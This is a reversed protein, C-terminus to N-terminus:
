TFNFDPSGQIQIQNKNRKSTTAYLCASNSNRAPPDDAVNYVGESDDSYSDEAALVNQYGEEEEMSFSDEDESELDEGETQGQQNELMDTNAQQSAAHPNCLASSDPKNIRWLFLGLLGSLVLTIVGCSVILQNFLSGKVELLVTNNGKLTKEHEQICKSPLVVCSYHGSDRMVAGEITFTAELRMVNFAQVQLITENRRLYAQILQCEGLTQLTDTVTCRFKVADGEVVTSPGAVSIVAPLFNAIVLIQIINDGRKNVKSLSHNRVSYVCSYSGSQNLGVRSLIFTTDTQDPKQIKETIGIDDKCLYVHVTTAKKSGFTSCTVYLDSNESITKQQALIRAPFIDNTQSTVQNAIAGFHLPM